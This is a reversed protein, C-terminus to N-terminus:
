MFQNQEAVYDNYKIFVSRIATELAKKVNGYYYNEFTEMLEEPGDNLNYGILLNTIFRKTLNTVVSAEADVIVGTRKDFLVAVVLIHYEAEVTTNTPLKAYGSLLVTNGHHLGSM